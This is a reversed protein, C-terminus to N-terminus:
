RGKIPIHNLSPELSGSNTKVLVGIPLHCGREMWHANSRSLISQSGAEGMIRVKYDCGLPHYNKAYSGHGISGPEGPDKLLQTIFVTDSPLSELFSPREEGCGSTLWGRLHRQSLSGSLYTDSYRCSTRWTDGTEYRLIEM